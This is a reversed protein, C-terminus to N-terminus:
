YFRKFLAEGDAEGGTLLLEQLDLLSQERLRPSGDWLLISKLYSSRLKIGRSRKNLMTGQKQLEVMYRVASQQSRPYRNLFGRQSSASFFDGMVFYYHAMADIPNRSGLSCQSLTALLEKRYVSGFGRGELFTDFENVIAPCGVTMSNWHWLFSGHFIPKRGCCVGKKGGSLVRYKQSPLRKPYAEWDILSPFLSSHCAQIHPDLGRGYQMQTSDIQIIRKKKYYAVLLLFYLNSRWSAHRMIHDKYIRIKQKQSSKKRLSDHYQWSPTFYSDVESRARRWRFNVMLMPSFTFFISEQERLEMQTLKRM